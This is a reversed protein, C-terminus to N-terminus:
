TPVQYPISEDTAPDKDMCDIRVHLPGADMSCRHFIESNEYEFRNLVSNRRLAAAIMEGAEM